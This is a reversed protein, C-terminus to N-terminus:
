LDSDGPICIQKEKEYRIAGETIWINATRDKILSGSLPAPTVPVTVGVATCHKCTVKGPINPHKFHHHSGVTATLYWGNAKLIKIVERSSYSKM